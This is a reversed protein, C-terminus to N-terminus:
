RDVTRRKAEFLKLASAILITGLLAKLMPGSVYGILSAGAVAGAISGAAMPVVLTGVDGRLGGTRNAHHRWLGIVLTPISILLSLTGAAKVDAGFAFVLTPIILEGGAVGLLTSVAGILGGAVLGVAVLGPVGLPLGSTHWALGSEILLLVGILFLLGRVLRRLGVDPLRAVWASGLYAGVTGGGIMASLIALTDPPFSLARSLGLRVAAAAVVTVFSVVLNLVVARRLVYGFVAVLIPLRFEAGGLGILGGLLGVAFGSSVALLPRGGTARRVELREEGM